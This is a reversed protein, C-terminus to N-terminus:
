IVKEPLRITEEEGIRIGKVVKEGNATSRVVIGDHPHEGIQLMGLHMLMRIVRSELVVNSTDYYYPKILPCLCALLSRMTVWRKSLAIVWNALPLINPIPGKYLRLWLRFIQGLDEKQATHVRLLGAETLHLLGNEERFLDHYYCYDYIFSFRDPYERYRRGYGFRFGVRGIPDEKVSLSELLGQLTRKYITGDSTLAIDQKSVFRLYSFIDEVMLTQEDRYATPEDTYHLQARFRNELSQSIKLKLDQPVRFLFKTQESFGNFLWGRHKYLVIMERSTDSMSEKTSLITAQKARATLEELSYGSKNEFLLTAVFRIDELSMEEIFRDMNSKRSIANLISQILENKSHGDCECDYHAAIKSLQHIDAYCLMDALNM